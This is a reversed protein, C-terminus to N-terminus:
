YFVRCQRWYIGNQDRYRHSGFGWGTLTGSQWQDSNVDRFQAEVPLTLLTDRRPKKWSKIEFVIAVPYSDAIFAVDEETAREVLETASIFLEGVVPTGIREIEYSEPTGPIRTMTNDQAACTLLNNETDNRRSQSM